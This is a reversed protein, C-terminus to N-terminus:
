AAAEKGVEGKWIAREPNLLLWCLASAAQLGAILLPVTTWGGTWGVFRPLFWPLVMAGFNGTMNMMGFVPAVQRGGLDITLAYSCPAAIGTLFYSVTLLGVTLWVNSTLYALSLLIVCLMMSGVAVGQRAWRRRGTRALIWDSIIGGLFSGAVMGWLPGSNFRGAEATTVGHTNVLWTAFWTGLFIYGAARFFQQGCLLLMTPSTVLELWPTPEADHVPQATGQRIIELEAANVSAHEEPQDRFWFFFGLSWLVGPLAFLFFLWRWGALSLLEGTLWAGLAGGISMFSTLLGSAFARQTPPLWDRFASTAAPFIGAQAAGQGFRMLLLLGYSEALGLLGTAISWLFSYCALARRNGWVHCLWGSPIQFLSYSLFFVGLIDGMQEPSLSLDQRITQEAVGMGNRQSYALAAAVCLWALVSYRVVTPAARSTM